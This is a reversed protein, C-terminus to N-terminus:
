LAGFFRKFLVSSNNIAYLFGVVIEYFLLFLVGINLNFNAFQLFLVVSVLAISSFVIARKSNKAIISRYSIWYFNISLVLIYIASLIFETKTVCIDPFFEELVFPAFVLFCLALLIGIALFRFVVFDYNARSVVLTKVFTSIAVNFGVLVKELIDFNLAMENKGTKYLVIKLLNSKAFGVFNLLVFQISVKFYLFMDELSPHKYGIELFRKIIIGLNFVIFFISSLIIFNEVERFCFVLLLAGLRVILSQGIYYPVRSSEVEYLVVPNSAGALVSLVLSVRFGFLIMIITVLLVVILRLAFVVSLRKFVVGEKVYQLGVSSSALMLPFSIVAAAAQTESYFQVDLNTYNQFLAMYLLFPILLPFLELFYLKFYRNTLGM